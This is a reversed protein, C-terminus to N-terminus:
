VIQTVVNAQTHVSFTSEKFEKRVVLPVVLHFALINFFIPRQELIVAGIFVTVFIVGSSGHPVLLETDVHAGCMTDQLSPRLVITFLYILHQFRVPLLPALLQGLDLLVLDLLCVDAEEAFAAVVLLPEVEAELWLLDAARAKVVGGAEVVGLVIDADEGEVGRLLVVLIVLPPRPVDLARLDLVLAQLPAAGVLAVHAVLLVDDVAAVLVAAELLDQVLVLIFFQSFHYLFHFQILLSNYNQIKMM